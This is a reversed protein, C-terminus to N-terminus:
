RQYSNLRFAGGTVALTPLLFFLPKIVLPMPLLFFSVIHCPANFILAKLSIFTIIFPLSWPVRLIVLEDTDESVVDECESM